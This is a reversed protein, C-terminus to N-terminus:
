CGKHVYGYISNMVIDSKEAAENSAGLATLSHDSLPNKGTRVDVISSLVQRIRKMPVAESGPTLQSKDASCKM